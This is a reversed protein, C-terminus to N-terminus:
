CEYKAAQVKYFEAYRGKAEMLKQHFGHEKIEGQEMFYVQDVYQVTALRHSIMVITRDHFIKYIMRLIEEESVPDLASTSEDLIIFDYEGAYIRALALKQLEGGSFYAGESDFERTVFTHIGNKLCSVKEYLGVMGLASNVRSIDEEGQVPHMLINEAITFGYIKFDQSLYIIRSRVSQVSYRDIPQGNLLLRGGTADFLRIMLKALTSKGAGNYGVLAIKEGHKIDLSVQKLVVPMDEAYAFVVNDLSMDVPQNLEMDHEDEREIGEEFAFLQRLKKIYLSHGYLSNLDNFFDQLNGPLIIVASSLVTAEAVSVKQQYLLWAIYMWPVMRKLVMGYIEQLLELWAIKVAYKHIIRKVSQTAQDYRFILLEIFKPYVKLDSTFEPQYTVRGVYGRKRGDPTVEVNKKYHIRSYVPGLLTDVSVAIIGALAFGKNIEVTTDTVVRFKVLAYLAAFMSNLVQIARTDVENLALTYDDFFKPNQFNLQDIRRVKDILDKRISTCLNIEKQPVVLIDLIRKTCNAVIFTVFILMIKLITSRFGEGRVSDLIWRTLNVDVYVAYMVIPICIVKYWVMAQGYKFVYKLMWFVNGIVHPLTQKPMSNKEKM